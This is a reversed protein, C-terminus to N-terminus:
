IMLLLLSEFVSSHETHIIFQSFSSLTWMVSIIRFHKIQVQFDFVSSGVTL